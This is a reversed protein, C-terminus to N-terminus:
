ETRDKVYQIVRGIIISKKLLSYFNPRESKLFKYDQTSPPPCWIREDDTTLVPSKSYIKILGVGRYIERCCM